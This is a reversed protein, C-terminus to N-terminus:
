PAIIAPIKDTPLSQQESTEMNKLMVKNQVIEEPGLIISYPIDKRDAYKLQKDLKAEPDPYLEANIGVTRLRSVVKVSKEMTEPSFITVLIQTSTKVKNKLLGLESIVDCIRDLGITTGVAPIDPGGLQAVLNDYRGGGTISGIKPEDVITEFVPGTYYDLGRVLTPVFELNEQDVGLNKALYIVKELYSDPKVEDKLKELLRGIDVKIDKEKLEAEVKDKSQKDLKDLSQLVSNQIQKIENYSNKTERRVEKLIQSLIERSSLRITFKKFGLNKLITYIIAIIEADSLPSKSGFIDVDCQLIERYRGKQPKEARWVRQIQYRKFPLTIKNQYIALVKATPVTLDYPMAIKRGGRDAFGYVLRDAEEGYKGLLTEAYELSPTQLPEFGFSEFVEKFKALVFNRVRMENPFFDRFGKLTQLKLKSSSM